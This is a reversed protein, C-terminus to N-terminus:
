FASAGSGSERELRSLRAWRRADGERSAMKPACVSRVATWGQDQKHVPLQSADAQGNRYNKLVLLQTMRLYAHLQAQSQDDVGGLSELAAALTGRADPGRYPYPIREHMAIAADHFLEIPDRARREAYEIITRVATLISNPEDEQGRLIGLLQRIEEDDDFGDAVLWLSGSRHPGWNYAYIEGTNQIWSIRWSTASNAVSPPRL